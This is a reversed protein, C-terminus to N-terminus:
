LTVRSHEEGYDASYATIDQAERAGDGARPPTLLPRAGRGYAARSRGFRRTKRRSFSYALRSSLKRPRAAVPEGDLYCRVDQALGNVSSYRQAPDKRMARLIIADLDGRLARQTESDVAALSPLVPDEEGVVRAVEDLDPHRTPFVHPTRGTLIEYLM